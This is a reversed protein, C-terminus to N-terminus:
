TGSDFGVGPLLRFTGQAMLGDIVTAVVEVLHEADCEAPPHARFRAEDPEFVLWSPSPQGGDVFAALTLIDGPDTDVFAGRDLAHASKRGPVYHFDPITGTLVPATMTSRETVMRRYMKGVKVAVALWVVALACSLLAFERTLWGLVSVGLFLV